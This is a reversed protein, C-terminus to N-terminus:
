CHAALVKGIRRERRHRLDVAVLHRDADRGFRYLHVASVAEGVLECHRAEIAARAVPAEAAARALRQAVEDAALEDLVHIKRAAAEAHSHESAIYRRSCSAFSIRAALPM